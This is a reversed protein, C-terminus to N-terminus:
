FKPKEEEENKDKNAAAARIAKVDIGVEKCINELQNGKADRAKMMKEELHMKAVNAKTAAAVKAQWSMEAEFKERRRKVESEFANVM